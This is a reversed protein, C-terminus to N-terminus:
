WSLALVSLPCNTRHSLALLARCFNIREDYYSKSGLRGEFLLLATLKKLEARHQADKISLRLFEAGAGIALFITLAQFPPSLGLFFLSILAAVFVSFCSSRFILTQESRKFARILILALLLTSVLAWSHMGEATLVVSVALLAGILLEIAPFLSGHWSTSSFATRGSKTQQVQAFKEHDASINM